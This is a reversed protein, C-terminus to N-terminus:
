YHPPLTCTFLSAGEFGGDKLVTPQPQGQATLETVHELWLAEKVAKPKKGEKLGETVAEVEKNTLAANKRKYEKITLSHQMGTKVELCWNSGTGRARLQVPCEVHFNCHLCKKSGQGKQNWSWRGENNGHVINGPVKAAAEAARQSSYPGAIPVFMGKNDQVLQGGRARMPVDRAADADCRLAHLKADREATSLVNAEFAQQIGEETIMGRHGCSASSSLMIPLTPPDCPSSTRAIGQGVRWSIDYTYM